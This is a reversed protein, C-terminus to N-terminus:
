EHGEGFWSLREKNANYILGLVRAEIILFYLLLFSGIFFRLFPISSLFSKKLVLELIFVVVLFAFAILYKDLVKIISPVIFFPNLSAFSGSMSVAILGMPLYFLGLGILVLFGPDALSFETLVYYYYVLAPIFCFIATGSVKVGPCLVSDWWDYFDPFDPLEDEGDASSSIVKMMYACLYGAIFAGVVIGIFPIINYHLFFSIIGFFVTGSILVIKGNGKFPYSFIGPLQEFFSKPESLGEDIILAELRIGKSIEDQPLNKQEEEHEKIKQAKWNEYEERNKFSPMVRGSKEMNIKPRTVLM